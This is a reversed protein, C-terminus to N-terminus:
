VSYITPLTLHTYSVPGPFQPGFSVNSEIRTPSALRQTINGIRNPSIQMPIPVPFSQLPPSYIQNPQLLYNPPTFSQNQILTSSNGIRPGQQMNRVNPIQTPLRQPSTGLYVNQSAASFVNFPGRWTM